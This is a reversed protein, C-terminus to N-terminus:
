RRRRTLPAALAAALAPSWGTAPEPVEAVQRLMNTWLQVAGPGNWEDFLPAAITRGGNGLIMVPAADGDLRAVAVSGPNLFWRDGDDLWDDFWTAHPMPVGDFLSTEGTDILTQGGLFLEGGGTVIMGGFAAPLLPDGAGDDNDWDWFSMAVRGGGSIYSLLPGWGEQPPTGPSDVLVADWPGGALLGNFTLSNGM